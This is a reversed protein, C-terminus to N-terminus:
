QGVLMSWGNNKDGFSNQQGAITGGFSFNLSQSVM